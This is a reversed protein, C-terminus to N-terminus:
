GIEAALAAIASAGIGTLSSLALTYPFGSSVPNAILGTCQWAARKMVADPGTCGQSILHSGDGPSGRLHPCSTGRVLLPLQTEFISNALKGSATVQNGKRSVKSIEGSFVQQVNAANM